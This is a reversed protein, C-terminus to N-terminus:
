KNKIVTGVFLSEYSVYQNLTLKSYEFEFLTIWEHLNCPLSDATTTDRGTLVGLSILKNDINVLQNQNNLNMEQVINYTSDPM